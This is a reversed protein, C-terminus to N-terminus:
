RSTRAARMRASHDKLHNDCVPLHTRQYVITSTPNSLCRAEAPRAGGYCMPDAREVRWKLLGFLAAEEDVVLSWTKGNRRRLLRRLRPVAMFLQHWENPDNVKVYALQDKILGLKNIEGIEFGVADPGMHWSRSTRIDAGYFPGCPVVRYRGDPSVIPDAIEYVSEDVDLEIYPDMFDGDERPDVVTLKTINM